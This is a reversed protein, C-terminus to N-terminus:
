NNKAVTEWSDAGQQFLLRATSPLFYLYSILLTVLPIYESLITSFVSNLPM